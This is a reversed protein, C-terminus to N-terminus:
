GSAVGPRPALGRLSDRVMEDLGLRASWGLEHKAKGPDAFMAPADGARRGVVRRPVYRGAIRDFAEVLEFVSVGVGRGLNINDTGGAMVDLRDLAARHGEAVDAVHLYDRLCSGDPTDYDDGFIALEDVRGSLAALIHPVLNDPLRPGDDRLDISPHFGIPNFYRLNIAAFGPHSDAFSGILQEITLKTQGYPNLAALPHNEDLPLYQPLGYVTASSSFLLRDVGAEAMAALMAIAGGVNNDFYDIPREVSEGVSKFGALHIVQTVDHDRMTAALRGRERVDFRHYDVPRQFAESLAAVNHGTSCSENDVVVISQGAELLAAAVHAGIYGAGGTLLTTM